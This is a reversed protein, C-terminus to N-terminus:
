FTKLLEGPIPLDRPWTAGVSLLVADNEEALTKASIDKGINVNTHFVVGEEALLDVRRKVIQM